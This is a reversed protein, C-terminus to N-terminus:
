TDLRPTRALLIKNIVEVLQKPSIPKTVFLAKPDVSQITKKFIDESESYATFFCIRANGDIKKIEQYLEFGSIWPMRIDLIIVDYYSAKFDALAQRPDTYDCVEFGHNTFSERLVTVIDVEDDVLMLRKQQAIALSDPM